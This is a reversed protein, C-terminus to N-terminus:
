AAVAWFGVTMEGLGSVEPEQSGHELDDTRSEEECDIRDPTEIVSTAQIWSNDQEPKHQSHCPTM